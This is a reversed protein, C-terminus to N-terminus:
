RTEERIRFKITYEIRDYFSKGKIAILFLEFANRLCNRREFLTLKNGRM